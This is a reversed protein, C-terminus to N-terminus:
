ADRQAVNVDALHISAVRLCFSHHILGWNKHIAMADDKEPQAKKPTTMMSNPANKKMKKM